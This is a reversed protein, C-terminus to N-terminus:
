PKQLHVKCKTLRLVFRVKTATEAKIDTESLMANLAQDDTLKVTSPSITTDQGQVAKAIGMLTQGVWLRTNVEQTSDRLQTLVVAIGNALRNRANVDPNTELQQQLDKALRYFVSALKKQGEDEGAISRLKEM